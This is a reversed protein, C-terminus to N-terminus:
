ELEVESTFVSNYVCPFRHINVVDCRTMNGESTPCASYNNGQNSGNCSSFDSLRAGQDNTRTPLLVTEGRVEHPSSWQTVVM